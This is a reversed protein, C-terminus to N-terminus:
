DVVLKNFYEVAEKLFLFRNEQHTKLNTVVYHHNNDQLSIEFKKFEGSAYFLKEHSIFELIKEESIEFPKQTKM